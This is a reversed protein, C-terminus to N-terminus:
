DSNVINKDLPNTIKQNPKLKIIARKYRAKYGQNFGVRKKKMPAIYTNLSIINVNFVKELLAKIQPKTLRVDLDFAYTAYHIKKVNPKELKQENEVNVFQDKETAQNDLNEEGLKNQTENNTVTQNESKSDDIKGEKEKQLQEKKQKAQAEKFKQLRMEFQDQEDPDRYIYKETIVMRKILDVLM